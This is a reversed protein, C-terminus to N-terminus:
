DVIKIAKGYVIAYSIKKRAKELLRHFTPQSIKMMEACQKQELGLVDKLRLSEIEEKFITIEELTSKPVGAPKFYHFNFSDSIIKKKCPRPM